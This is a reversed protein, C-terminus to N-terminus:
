GDGGDCEVKCDNVERCAANSDRVQGEPCKDYVKRECDSYGDALADTGDIPEYGTKCVCTEEDALYKRNLGVCKCSTSGIDSKTAGKCPKCETAGVTNGFTDEACPECQNAYGNGELDSYHGLPCAM